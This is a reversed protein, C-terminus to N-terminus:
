SGYAWVVQTRATAFQKVSFYVKYGVTAIQDLPDASGASGTEKVIMKLGASALDVVGFADRGVFINGYTNTSTADARINTSRSLQIGFASGIEASEIVTGASGNNGSLIIFSSAATESLLSFEMYPHIVGKYKGNEFTPINSARLAKLVLKLDSSAMQDTGSEVNAKSSNNVPDAYRQTGNADLENRVIQDLSLAAVYALLEQADNMTDNIAAMQLFDSISVYQGYAALTNTYATSTLSIGDGPNAESLATVSSAPATWQNWKVTKGMHQPLVKKKGMPVLLLEKKIFDLFKSELFSMIHDTHDGSVRTNLAM